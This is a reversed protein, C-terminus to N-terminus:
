LLLCECSPEKKGSKGSSIDHIKFYERSLYEFTEVINHNNKASTEFFQCNLKNALEQGEAKSVKRSGELDSKNGCLVCTFKETGKSRILEKYFKEVDEFSFRDIISYVLIFGEGTRMYATRMAAFDDQGATDTVNLQLIRGDVSFRKNYADEITPNYDKVFQGQVFQITLASKGVGGAGFVVIKYEQKSSAYM